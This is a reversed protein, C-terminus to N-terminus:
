GLHKRVRDAIEEISSVGWLEKLDDGAGSDHTTVNGDYEFILGQPDPQMLTAGDAVGRGAHDIKYSGPLQYADVLFLMVRTGQPIATNWEELSFHPSGDADDGGQPLEVYVREDVIQDGGLLVEGVRVRLVLFHEPEADSPETWLDRGQVIEEVAGIAILNIDHGIEAAAERKVILEEPSTAVDYDAAGLAGHVVGLDPASEPEIDRVDTGCGGLLAVSAIAGVVVRRSNM